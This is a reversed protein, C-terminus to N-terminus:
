NATVAGDPGVGIWDPPGCGHVSTDFNFFPEDVVWRAEPYDGGFFVKGAQFRPAGPEDSLQAAGRPPLSTQPGPNAPLEACYPSLNGFYLGSFGAFGVRHDM